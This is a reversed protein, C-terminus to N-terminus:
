PEGVAAHHAAGVFGEGVFELLAELFGVDEGGFFGCGQGVVGEAGKEYGCSADFALYFVGEVCEGIGCQEYGVACVVRECCGELYGCEQACAAEAAFYHVAGYALYGFAEHLEAAEVVYAGFECAAAYADYACGGVPEYGGADVGFCGFFAPAEFEYM